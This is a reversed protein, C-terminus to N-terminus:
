YTDFSLVRTNIVKEKEHLPVTCFGSPFPENPM